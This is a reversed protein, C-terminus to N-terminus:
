HEASRRSAGRLRLLAAGRKAEAATTGDEEARAYSFRRKLGKVAFLAHLKAETYPSLNITEVDVGDHKVTMVPSKGRIWTIQVGEYSSAGDSNRLFRKVEPM